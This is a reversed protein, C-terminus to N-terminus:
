DINAGHRELLDAIDKHGKDTAGWMPTAGFTTKANVNAGKSILLEAIDRQGKIAAGHLPTLGRSGKANVDAGKSILLEVIDRSNKMVAMHLPTWGEFNKANINAGSALLANIASINGDTVAKSLDKNKKSGFISRLLTSIPGWICSIIFIQWWKLDWGYYIDLFLLVVLGIGFLGFISGM